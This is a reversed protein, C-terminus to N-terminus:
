ERALIEFPVLYSACSAHAASPGACGGDYTSGQMKIAAEGHSASRPIELDVSFSGDPAVPVDGLVVPVARGVFLLMARYTTGEAYPMCQAPKSSVRVRDGARVRNSSLELREPWCTSTRETSATPEPSGAPRASPSASPASALRGSGCAASAALLAALAIRSISVSTM